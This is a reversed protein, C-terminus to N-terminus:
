DDREGEILANFHMNNYHCIAAALADAAHDPKPLTKLGLLVKTLEQVQEKKARGRGVIAQKIAQPPYEGLPIKKQALLLLSIGKAQAVPFASAINKAFFLNEIGAEDPHFEEIIESLSDYIIKLRNGPLTGGETRIVGYSVARYRDNEVEIVGYGTNALGPDIGLIRIM